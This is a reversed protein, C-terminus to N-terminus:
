FGFFKWTDPRLPIHFYGDKLDISFMFDRPHAIKHLDKLDEMKFKPVDVFANLYRCDSILRFKGGTAKPITNLPFCIHSSFWPPCKIIAGM